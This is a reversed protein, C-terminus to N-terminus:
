FFDVLEIDFILPTNPPISGSGNAGYALGSPLYFTGKGKKNLLRLAQSFGSVVGSVGFQALEAGNTQDFVEGDLFYGKYKVTVTSSLTPKVNDNNGLDTIVYRLGSDTSDASIGKEVLYADIIGKDVALQEEYTLSNDKCSFCAFAFFGLFLLLLKKM